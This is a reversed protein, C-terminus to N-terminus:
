KPESSEEQERDGWHRVEDLRIDGRQGDESEARTNGVVSGSALPGTRRRARLLAKWPSEAFAEDLEELSSGRTEPLFALCVLTAVLSCGGFLFYPGSSSKALFLPTTFAVIWNVVKALLMGDAIACDVLLM